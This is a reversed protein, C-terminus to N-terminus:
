LFYLPLITIKDEGFIFTVGQEGYYSWSILTSFAFMTVCITVIWEGAPGMVKSLATATLAAGETGEPNLGYV